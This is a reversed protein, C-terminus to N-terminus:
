SLAFFGLLASSSWTLVAKSLSPGSGRARIQPFSHRSLSWIFKGNYKLHKESLLVWNLTRLLSFWDCPITVVFSTCIALLWLATIPIWLLGAFYSAMRAILFSSVSAALSIDPCCIFYLSIQVSALYLFATKHLVIGKETSTKSPGCTEARLLLLFCLLLGLGDM